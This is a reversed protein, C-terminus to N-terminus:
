TTSNTTPPALSSIASRSVPPASPRTYTNARKMPFDTPTIVSVGKLPTRAPVAPSSHMVRAGMDPSASAM